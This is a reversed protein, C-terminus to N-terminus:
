CNSEGNLVSWSGLVSSAKEPVGPTARAEFSKLSPVAPASVKKKTDAKLARATALIREKATGKEWRTKLGLSSACCGQLAPGPSSGRPSTTTSSSTIGNPPHTSEGCPDSATPGVGSCDRRSIASEWPCSDAGAQTVWM